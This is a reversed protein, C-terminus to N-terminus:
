RHMIGAEHCHAVASMLQKAIGRLERPRMSLEGQQDLDHLHQRLNCFGLEMIFFIANSTVVVEYLEVINPHNISRLIAAERIQVAPVGQDMGEVGNIRNM